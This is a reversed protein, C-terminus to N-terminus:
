RECVLNVYVCPNSLLEMCISVRKRQGGSIGREEVNGIRTDACGDLRLSSMVANVRAEREKRTTGQPLVLEAHYTLTERVTFSPLIVDEQPILKAVSKFDRPPGPEGNVCVGGHRIKGSANGLIVSLCTTKGSGSPGMLCSLKGPSFQLTVDKIVHKDYKPGVYYDVHDMRVHIPITSDLTERQITSLRRSFLSFEAEERYFADLSHLPSSALSLNSDAARNGNALLGSELESSRNGSTM